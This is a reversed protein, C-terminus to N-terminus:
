STRTSTITALATSLTHGAGVALSAASQAAAAAVGAAQQAETGQFMNATNWAIQGISLAQAADQQLQQIAGANNLTNSLQNIMGTIAGAVNPLLTAIQSLANSPSAGTTAQHGQAIAQEILGEVLGILQSTDGSKISTTITQAAQGALSTAITVLENGTYDATQGQAPGNQNITITQNVTAGNIQSTTNFSTGPAASAIQSALSGSGSGAISGLASTLGQAEQVFGSALAGVGTGTLLGTVAQNIVSSVSSNVVGQAIASVAGLASVTGLASEVQQLANGLAGAAVSAAGGPSSAAALQNLKIM